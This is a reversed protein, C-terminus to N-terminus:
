IIGKEKALWTKISVIFRDGVCVDRWSDAGAEIRLMSKPILFAHNIHRTTAIAVSGGVLRSVYVHFRMRDADGAPASHVDDFDHVASM